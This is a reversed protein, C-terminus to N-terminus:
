PLSVAYAHFGVQCGEIVVATARDLLASPEKYGTLQRVFGTRLDLLYVGTPSLIEKGGADLDVVDCPAKVAWMLRGPGLLPDSESDPTKSIQRTAGTTLDLLFLDAQLSNSSSSTDNSTAAGGGMAGGYEEWAVLNGYVSPNAKLWPDAVLARSAGTKFSYIYIDARNQPCNGCGSLATGRQPSNRNDQWVVIDGDVAPSQQTGPAVALPYEQDTAPDYAYIDYTYIDYRASYGDLENRKDAWVLRSGGSSDIALDRRPVADATIRQQKGTHRDYVFIGDLPVQEDNTALHVTREGEQAIWAIYRASLVAEEKRRGDNTIKTRRGSALDVLYLEGDAGLGVYESAHLSLPRISPDLDHRPLNSADTVATYGTLAPAGRSESAGAAPAPPVPTATEVPALTATPAPPAPLAPTSTPYVGNSGGTRPDGPVTASVGTTVYGQAAVWVRLELPTGDRLLDEDWSGSWTNVPAGAGSGAPAGTQTGGPRDAFASLPGGMSGNRWGAEFNGWVPVAAPLPQGDPGTVSLRWGKRDAALRAHLQQAATPRTVKLPIAGMEFPLWLNDPGDGNLGDPAQRSFRADAWLSYHHRGVQELPPVQFLRTGSVVEGAALKYLTPVGPRAPAAWPWAPPAAGDEDRLSVAYDEVFLTDPGRNRLTVLAQGGEGALYSDGPLRVEMLLAGRANKMSAPPGTQIEPPGATPFPTITARAAITAQM